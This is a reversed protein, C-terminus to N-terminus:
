LQEIEQCVSVVEYLDKWFQYHAWPHRKHVKSVFRFFKECVCLVWDIGYKGFFVKAKQECYTKSLVFDQLWEHNHYM